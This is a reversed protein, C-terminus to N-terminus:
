ISLLILIIYHKEFKIHRDKDRKNGDKEKLNDFGNMVKNMFEQFQRALMDNDSSTYPDKTSRDIYNNMEENIEVIAKDIETEQSANISKAEM